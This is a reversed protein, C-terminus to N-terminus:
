RGSWRKRLNERKRGIEKCKRKGDAFSSVTFSVRGKNEVNYINVIVSGNKVKLPFNSERKKM